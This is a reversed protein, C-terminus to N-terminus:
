SEFAEVSKPTNFQIGLQVVGGKLEQSRVIEAPVWLTDPDAGLGIVVVMGKCFSFEREVADDQGLVVEAKLGFHSVDVVRAPFQRWRATSHVVLYASANTNRRQSKRREDQVAPTPEGPLENVVKQVQKQVSVGLLGWTRRALYYAKTARRIDDKAKDLWTQERYTKRLRKTPDPLGHVSETAEVLSSNISPQPQDKLTLGIKFGSITGTSHIVTM